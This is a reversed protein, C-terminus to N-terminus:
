TRCGARAYWGQKEGCLFDRKMIKGSPFGPCTAGRTPHRLCWHRILAWEADTLDSDYLARTKM